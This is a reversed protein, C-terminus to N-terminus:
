QRKTQNAIDVTLWGRLTGLLFFQKPALRLHTLGTQVM